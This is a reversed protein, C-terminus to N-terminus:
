WASRFIDLGTEGGNLALDPEFDAVEHPLSTLVSTPIYPPNSVLCTSRGGSPRGTSRLCWTAWASMSRKAPSIGLADRNRITLDVARPEIDIAVCRVRDRREAAISLSICGTGCGVELM